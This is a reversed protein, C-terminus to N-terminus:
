SLWFCSSLAHVLVMPATFLLGGLLCKMLPSISMCFMVFGHQTDFHSALDPLPSKARETGLTFSTCFLTSFYYSGERHKRNSQVNQKHFASTTQTEEPHVLLGVVFLHPTFALSSRVSLSSFGLLLMRMVVCADANPRFSNSQM